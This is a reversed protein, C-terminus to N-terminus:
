ETIMVNWTLHSITITIPLPVDDRYQSIILNIAVSWPRRLGFVASCYSSAIQCTPCTKKDKALSIGPWFINKFSLFFHSGEMKGEVWWPQTKCACRGTRLSWWTGLAATGGPAHASAATGPALASPHRSYATPLNWVSNWGRWFEEGRWIGKERGSKGVATGRTMGAGGDGTPVPLHRNRFFYM